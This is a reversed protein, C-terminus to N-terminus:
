ELTERVPCPEGRRRLLRALPHGSYQVAIHWMQVALKWFHYGSASVADVTERVPVQGILIPAQLLTASLYVRYRTEAAARRVTKRNMARFSTLRIDPPKHCIRELVREKISTGLRRHLRPGEAVNASTAPVGYVVDYGADLVELLRPIDRFDNKRDDDMTVVREGRAIRLGALTANQQGCNRSMLLGRAEPMDACITRLVAETGDPSADDVLIIEFARGPLLWASLFARLAAVTESLSNARGYTPIVVSLFIPARKNM